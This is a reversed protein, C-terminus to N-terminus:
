LWKVTQVTSITAANAIQTKLAAAKQRLALIAAKGDQGVKIMQAATHDRYAWVGNADMCSFQTKYGQTASNVAADQVSGLMNIQDTIQSPYTYVAGLASSQFGSTIASSCAADILASQAAQAGALSLPGAIGYPELVNVLEQDSENGTADKPWPTPANGQAVWAQYTKDSSQIVSSTKSSFIKGDSKLWYWDQPNYNAM